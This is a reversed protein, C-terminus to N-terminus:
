VRTSVASTWRGGGLRDDEPDHVEDGAQAQARALLRLDEADVVRLHALERVVVDPDVEPLRVLEVVVRVRM